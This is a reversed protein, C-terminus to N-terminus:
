QVRSLGKSSRNLLILLDNGSIRTELTGGVGMDGMMSKLKSLPAIVEPDVRANKNDGVTALTPGYALGGQALKPTGLSNKVLTGLAVLAIGGAIAVVPNLSQLATKIGLATVGVQIALKGFSIVANAIPLLLNKLSFSAGNLANALEEGFTYALDQLTGEIINKVGENLTVLGEKLRTIKDDTYQIANGAAKQAVTFADTSDKLSDMEAKSSSLKDPLLNLTPLLGVASMPANKIVRDGSSGGTQNTPETITEVIGGGTGSGGTKAGNTFLSALKGKLSDVTEGITKFREAVIKQEKQYPELSKSDFLEIGLFKQVKNVASLIGNIGSIVINKIDIWLNSFLDKFAKWNDYVYLALAGLAAITATIILIQPNAALYKIANQVAGIAKVVNKFAGVLASIGSVMKGIVFFVPGVAAVFLGAKVIFGQTEPNLSKFGDVLSKVKNSINEFVKELGLTSNITNGFDAAAIFLNDSLNEMANALGGTVNQTQPLKELAASLQLTFEKASIGTERIAEINSTGFALKMGEAMLPLNSQIVKYDEALLKNKSIMQTLQYQISELEVKGKGTAALAKGFGMLTNRAEDASLGVAQLNISGQVAEKLGLGPLKAVERLRELEAGALESSGMIAVLGKNLKELDAFSKLSATGLAVIPLTFSQTMKSGISEMQAGFRGLSREVKALEKSLNSVDIGLRLNLNSSLAM